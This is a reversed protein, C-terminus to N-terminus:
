LQTDTLRSKHLYHINNLYLITNKTKGKLKMGYITYFNEAVYNKKTSIYEAKLINLGKTMVCLFKIIEDLFNFEVNRGIVRCSMLFTDIIATDHDVKVISACVIGENNFRDENELDFVFFEKSEIFTAIDKVTYRKTTMNFQNTKQTLQATREIFRDDDVYQKFKIDLNNIFGKVDMKESIHRRQTNILYQKTKSKDEITLSIKPFYNYLVESIFWKNLYAPDDPFKPTDVDPINQKVLEREVVNDDILIFSDLSLKLEEAIDILNTVKDLWNIKMSVFDDMKLIMMPHKELCRKVDNFNNKSCVALIIGLDTIFKLTKQFDRFAKGFGDESLLIGDIGDEGIVGGWLTNDLDLVIVKKIKGKYAIRLKRFEDYIKSLGLYSYKIRGLYYYKDDYLNNYGYLNVIREWDLIIVNKFDNAYTKIEDNIYNKVMAISFEPDNELYTTPFYPELTITSIAFVTKVNGKVYIQIAGLLTNLDKKISIKDNKIDGFTSFHGKFYESGDLQLFIVDFVKLNITSKKDILELLYQNFGSLYIDSYDDKFLRAIPDM